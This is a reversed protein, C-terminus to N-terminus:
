VDRGHGHPLERNKRPRWALWGVVVMAGCASIAAGLRVSAPRYRFVVRHSGAPVPVARMLRNARLIPAPEGDVTATWGPYFTDALILLGPQRLTADLEVRTPERRVVVASESSDPPTRPLFGNLVAPDDTEVIAMGRLDLATHNPTHWIADDRFLLRQMSRSLATLDGPPVPPVIRAEHVVWARPFADDNRVLQWDQVENWSEHLVEGDPDTFWSEQPAIPATNELFAAYGRDPSSWDPHSPLILYRSGWVNVSRRPYYVVPSGRKIGLAAATGIDAPV